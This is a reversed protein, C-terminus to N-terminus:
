IKYNFLPLYGFFFRGIVAKNSLDGLIDSM